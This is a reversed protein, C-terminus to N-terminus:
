MQVIQVKLIYASNFLIRHQRTYTHLENGILKVYKNSKNQDQKKVYGNDNQTPHFLFLLLLLSLLIQLL